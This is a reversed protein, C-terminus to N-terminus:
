TAEEQSNVLPTDETDDTSSASLPHSISDAAPQREQRNTVVAQLLVDAIESMGVGESRLIDLLKRYSTLDGNLKAAEIARTCSSEADCNPQRLNAVLTDQKLQIGIKEWKRAMKHTFRDVLSLDLPEAEVGEDNKSDCGLLLSSFPSLPILSSFLESFSLIHGCAHACVFLSHVNFEGAFLTSKDGVEIMVSDVNTQSSNQIRRKRELHLLTSLVLTILICMFTICVIVPCAIAVAIIFKLDNKSATLTENTPESLNHAHYLISGTFQRLSPAESSLHQVFCDVAVASQSQVICAPVGPWNADTPTPTPGVSTNVGLGLCELSGCVCCDSVNHAILPCTEADAHPM